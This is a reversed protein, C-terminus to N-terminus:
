RVREVYAEAEAASDFVLLVTWGGTATRQFLEAGIGTWGPEIRWAGGKHVLASGDQLWDDLKANM